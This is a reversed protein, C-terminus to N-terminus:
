VASGEHVKADAGTSLCTVFHLLRELPTTESLNKTIAATSCLALLTRQGDVIQRQNPNQVSVNGSRTVSVNEEKCPWLKAVWM